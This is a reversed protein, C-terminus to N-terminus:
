DMACDVAARQWAERRALHHNGSRRDGIASRLENSNALNELSRSKAPFSIGSDVGRVSPQVPANAM